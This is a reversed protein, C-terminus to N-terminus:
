CVSLCFLCVFLCVFSCVFSCVLLSVCEQKFLEADIRVGLHAASLFSGHVYPVHGASSASAPQRNRAVGVLASLNKHAPSWAPTQRSPFRRQTMLVEEKPSNWSGWFTWPFLPCPVQGTGFGWPLSLASLVSSSGSRGLSTVQGSVWFFRPPDSVWLVRLHQLQVFAGM